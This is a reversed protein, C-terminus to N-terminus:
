QGTVRNADTYYNPCKATDSFKSEDKLFLIHISNILWSSNNNIYELNFSIPKKEEDFGNITLCGIKNVINESHSLYSKMYEKFLLQDKVEPDNISETKLLDSSFYKPYLKKINNANVESSYMLYKNYLVDNPKDNINACSLLLYIIPLFLTIKM